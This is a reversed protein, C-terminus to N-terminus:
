IQSRAKVSVFIVCAFSFQFSTLMYIVLKYLGNSLCTNNDDLGQGAQERSAQAIL